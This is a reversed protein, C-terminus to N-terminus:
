AGKFAATIAAVAEKGTFTTIPSPALNDIFEWCTKHFQHPSNQMYSWGARLMPTLGAVPSSAVERTAEFTFRPADIYPPQQAEVPPIDVFFGTDKKNLPMGSLMAIDFPIPQGHWVYYFAMRRINNIDGAAKYLYAAIIGLMPDLHKRNRMSELIKAADASKLYGRSLGKLAEVSSLGLTERPNDFVSKWSLFELGEIGQTYTRPFCVCFTLPMMPILSIASGNFDLCVTTGNPSANDKAEVFAKATRDSMPKMTERPVRQWERQQSYVSFEKGGILVLAPDPIKYKLEGYIEDVLARRWNSQSSKFRENQRAEFKERERFQALFIASEYSHSKSKENEKEPLNIGNDFYDVILESVGMDPLQVNGALEGYDPEPTLNDFTAYIHEVPRFGPDCQTNQIRDVTLAVRPVHEELYDALSQSTVVQRNSALLIQDLNIGRPESLAELLISSFIPYAPKGDKAPAIFSSTGNQCSFFNDKQHNKSHGALTDLVPDAAGTITLPGRCADSIFAIQKPGYSSLAERFSNVSIRERTQHPGPSLILYQDPWVAFGHGCFYVVIRKRDLLFSPDTTGDDEDPTLVSRILDITVPNERDSFVKVEYSQAAWEAIKDVAELVGPLTEMGKPKHVGIAIFLPKRM